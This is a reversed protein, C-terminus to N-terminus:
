KGRAHIRLHSKLLASRNFSKGCVSCPYPKEGTHIRRHIKLHASQNFTKGCEPCCYPKEGTHIRQHIKLHSSQNFVKGCQDCGYPKEGTHIREHIKLNTLQSFAKGCRMCSYPKEGTHIRQHSKLNLSHHFTKGCQTCMFRKEGSHIVQYDPLNPNQSFHNGSDTCENTQHHIAWRPIYNEESPEKYVGLEVQGYQEQGTFKSGETSEMQVGECHHSVSVSGASAEEMPVEVKVCLYNETETLEEKVQLSECNRVQDQIHFSSLVTSNRLLHSIDAKAEEAEHHSSSQESVGKCFSPDPTKRVTARLDGTFPQEEMPLTKRTVLSMAEETDFVTTGCDRTGTNQAHCWSKTGRNERPAERPETLGKVRGSAPPDTTTSPAYCRGQGTENSATPPVHRVAGSGPTRASRAAITKGKEPASFLQTRGSMPHTGPSCRPLNWDALRLYKRMSRVESRSIHLQLTLSEIEKEKESLEQLFEAIRSDVSTTFESLASDVAAKLSALQEQFVGGSFRCEM